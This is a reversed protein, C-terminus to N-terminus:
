WGEIAMAGGVILIQAVLPFIRTAPAAGSSGCEDRSSLTSRGIPIPAGYWGRYRPIARATGSAGLACMRALDDPYDAM